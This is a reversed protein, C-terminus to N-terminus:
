YVYFERLVRIIKIASNMQFYYIGLKSCSFQTIIIGIKKIDESYTSCCFKEVNLFSFTLSNSTAKFLVSSFLSNWNIWQDFTKHHFKKISQLHLDFTM